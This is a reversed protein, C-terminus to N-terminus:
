ACLQEYLESYREIGVMVKRVYDRTESYPIILHGERTVLEEDELWSDVANFGANYAALAYEVNGSYRELLFRLLYCGMDINYEVGALAEERHERGQRWAIWEATEPMIQMLGVAGAHSKAEPRFGSETNIVSAVLAASLEYKESASLIEDAYELPYVRYEWRRAGLVALTAALAICLCVILATIWSRRADARPKRNSTKRKGGKGAPM